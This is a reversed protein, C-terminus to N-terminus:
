QAGAQVKRPREADATFTLFAVCMEDSTQEGWTVLKPPNHPNVPNNSSNDYHAELDVRSGPPLHLPEKFTYTTQWNFDWDPVHVMPVITGDPLTATVKMDRGLLHMHPMVRYVTAGLPVPLSAHVVYNSDNPPIRLALKIVPASRVRKKIPEKAFYIGVKTRDTESKGSKNYHVQLIVDAGKPLPIGLGDPLRSPFNGPAWGGISGSARFGVGGFTSYGPGPDQADLERGKGTTDLYAIVHHVVRRNGPRVEIASVYRNEAFDTPIVFCRYVDRGESALEYSETPEIVADPEGLTWGDTFKPIPPLDGPNGEPMGAAFWDQFLGIQEATLHRENLFEGFGKEAKWPPMIHERTVRAIQKARKSVDLYTLLPFPAVEGTRHCSACNQFVIPAIEKTFTPSRSGSIQSKAEAIQLRGNAEQGVAVAVFLSILGCVIVIRKM